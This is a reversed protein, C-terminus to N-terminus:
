KLFESISHNMHRNNHFVMTYHNCASKITQLDCIYKKTLYFDKELFLPPHEGISGTAEVLLTKCDITECVKKIDFRYFSEFDKRVLEVESKHQWRNNKKEIEYSAISEMVESWEVGLTSYINKLEITYSEPSEYSKSLRSLSPLVINRQHNSAEAVGDLLILAKVDSREGAVIAAIYAGMSHGLLIPSEIDMVELLALLDEAHREISTDEDLDSSNGRGRLDYSIFRYEPSFAHQFYYMNKHNGTLGHISVITGKRGPSDAIQFTKDNVSLKYEEM